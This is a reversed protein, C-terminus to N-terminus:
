RERHPLNDGIQGAAAGDPGQPNSADAAGGACVFCLVGAGTYYAHQDLGARPWDEDVPSLVAQTNASPDPGHRCFCGRRDM